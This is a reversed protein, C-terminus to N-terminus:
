SNGSGAFNRRYSGPTEIIALHLMQAIWRNGFTAAGARTSQGDDYLSIVGASSENRGGDTDSLVVSTEDGQSTSRSQSYVM